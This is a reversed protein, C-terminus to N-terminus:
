DENHDTEAAGAGSSGPSSAGMFRGNSVFFKANDVVVDKQDYSRGHENWRVELPYAKSRIM